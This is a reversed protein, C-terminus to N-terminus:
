KIIIGKTGQLIKFEIKDKKTKEILFDLSKPTKDAYRPLMELNEISKFLFRGLSNLILIKLTKVGVTQEYYQNQWAAEKKGFTGIRFMQWRLQLNDM